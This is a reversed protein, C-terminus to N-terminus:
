SSWSKWKHYTKWKNNMETGPILPNMVENYVCQKLSGIHIITNGNQYCDLGNKHNYLRSPNSDWARSCCLFPDSHTEEQNYTVNFVFCYMRWKCHTCKYFAVLASFQSVPWEEWATLENYLIHRLPKTSINFSIVILLICLDQQQM